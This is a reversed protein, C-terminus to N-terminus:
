RARHRRVGQGRRSPGRRRRRSAGGAGEAPGQDPRPLRPQPRLGLDRRRIKRRAGGASRRGTRLQPRAHRPEEREAMARASRRPPRVDGGDLAMDGHAGEALWAALRDRAGHPPRRRADRPLRRLRARPAKAKLAALLRSRRLDRQRADGAPPRGAAPPVVPAVEGARVLDEGDRERGVARRRSLRPLFSPGGGRPRCLDAPRRGALQAGSILHGIYRLHYRLNSRAARVAQM